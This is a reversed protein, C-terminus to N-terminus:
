LARLPSARWSLMGCPAERMPPPEAGIGARLVDREFTSASSREELWRKPASM